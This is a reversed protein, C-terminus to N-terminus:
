ANTFRLAMASYVATFRTHIKANLCTCPLMTEYCWCHEGERGNPASIVVDRMKGPNEDQLRRATKPGRRMDAEPGPNCMVQQRDYSSAAKESYSCSLGALEGPGRRSMADVSGGMEKVTCRRQGTLHNHPTGRPCVRSALDCMCVCLWCVCVYVYLCVRVSVWVLLCVCVCVSVFQGM